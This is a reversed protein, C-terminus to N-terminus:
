HLSCSCSNVNSLQARSPRGRRKEHVALAEQGFTAQWDCRRKWAELGGRCYRSWEVAKGHLPCPQTNVTQTQTAWESLLERTEAAECQSLAEDLLSFSRPPVSIFKDGTSSVLAVTRTAVLKLLDDDTLETQSQSPSPSPSPSTRECDTDPSPFSLPKTSKSAQAM